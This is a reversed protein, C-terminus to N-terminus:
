QTCIANHFFILDHTMDHIKFSDFSVLSCQINMRQNQPLCLCINLSKAIIKWFSVNLTQEGRRTLFLNGRLELFDGVDFLKLIAFQKDLKKKQFLLQIQGSADKLDAFIVNGHERWRWLLGVVNVLKNQVEKAKAIAVFDKSYKPPYPNIGLERLKSLKELRVKRIEELRSQAM